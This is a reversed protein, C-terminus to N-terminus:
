SGRLLARSLTLPSLVVLMESDTQNPKYLCAPKEPSIPPQYVYIPKETCFICLGGGEKRVYCASVHLQDYSSVTEPLLALFVDPREHLGTDLWLRM